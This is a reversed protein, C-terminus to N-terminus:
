FFNQVKVTKDNIDEYNCWIPDDFKLINILFICSKMNYLIEVLKLHTLTTFFHHYCPGKTM